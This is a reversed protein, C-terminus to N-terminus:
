LRLKTWIYCIKEISHKLGQVEGTHFPQSEPRKSSYFTM